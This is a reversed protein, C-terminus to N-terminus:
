KSKYEQYLKRIVGDGMGTKPVNVVEAGSWRMVNLFIEAAPEIVDARDPKLGLESIREEYTRKKIDQYIDKLVDYDLESTKRSKTMKSLQNINGGSGIIELNKKGKSNEKVWKKMEDWTEESVKNQLLRITGIKFSTSAEAKNHHFLTLETSGGGVDVYMFPREIALSQFLHNAYIFDAEEQGSIIEIKIGSKDKVEDVIELNNKADRMASTACARYSIVEHVKMLRDFATMTYVLKKITDPSIQGNEFSEKGLRLPVRYSENKNFITGKSDEVVYYIILRIANSGIDIAAFKLINM